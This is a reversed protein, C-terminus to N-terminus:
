FLKNPIWQSYFPKMTDAIYFIYMAFLDKKLFFRCIWSPSRTSRNSFAEWLSDERWLWQDPPAPPVPTGRTCNTTSLQCLLLDTQQDRILFPQLHVTEGAVFSLWCLWPLRRTLADCFVFAHLTEVGVGGLTWNNMHCLQSFAWLPHTAMAVHTGGHTGTLMSTDALSEPYRNDRSSAGTSKRAPLSLRLWLWIRRSRLASACVAVCWCVLFEDLPFPAM